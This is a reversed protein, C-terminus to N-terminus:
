LQIFPGQWYREACLCGIIRHLFRGREGGGGALVLCSKHMSRRRPRPRTPHRCEQVSAWEAAGHLGIVSCLCLSVPRMKGPNTADRKNCGEWQKTHDIGAWGVGRRSFTVGCHWSAEVSPKSFGFFAFYVHLHPSVKSPRLAHRSCMTWRERSRFRLGM